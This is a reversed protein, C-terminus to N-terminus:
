SDSSFPIRGRGSSNWQPARARGKVQPISHDHQWEPERRLLIHTNSQAVKYDYLGLNLNLSRWESVM